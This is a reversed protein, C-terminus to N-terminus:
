VKVHWLRFHSHGFLVCCCDWTHDCIVDRFICVLKVESLPKTFIDAPNLHGPVRSVVISNHDVHDRFRHYARHMNQSTKRGAFCSPQSMEYGIGGLFYWM